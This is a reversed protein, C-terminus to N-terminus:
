GRVCPLHQPSPLQTVLRSGRPMEEAWVPSAQAAPSWLCWSCSTWVSHVVGDGLDAGLTGPEASEVENPVWVPWGGRRREQLGKRSGEGEMGVGWSGGVDM